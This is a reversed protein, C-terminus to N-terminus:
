NNKYESIYNTIDIIPNNIKIAHKMILNKWINVKILEEKKDTIRIERVKRDNGFPVICVYKDDWTGFDPEPLFDKVKEFMCVYVRIGSKFDFEIQKKVLPRELDKINEVLYVRIFEKLQSAVKRGQKYYAAQTDWFKLGTFFTSFAQIKYSYFHYIDQQFAKEQPIYVIQERKGDESIIFERKSALYRHYVIYDLYKKDKFSNQM